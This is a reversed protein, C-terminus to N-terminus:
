CPSRQRIGRQPVKETVPLFTALEVLWTLMAVGCCVLAV